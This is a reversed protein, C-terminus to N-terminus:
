WKDNLMSIHQKNKPTTKKAKSFDSFELFQNGGLMKGHNNLENRGAMLSNMKQNYNEMYEMTCVFGNNKVKTHKRAYNSAIQDRRMRINKSM